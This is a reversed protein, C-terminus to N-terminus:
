FKIDEFNLEDGFLRDTSTISRLNHDAPYIYKVLYVGNFINMIISVKSM